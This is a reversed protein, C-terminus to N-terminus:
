RVVIHGTAWLIVGVLVLFAFPGVLGVEGQSARKGHRRERCSSFNGQVMRTRSPRRAPAFEKSVIQM